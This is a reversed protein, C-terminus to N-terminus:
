DTLGETRGSPPLAPPSTTGDHSRSIPARTRSRKVGGRTRRRCGEHKTSQPGRREAEGSSQIEAVCDTLMARRMHQARVYLPGCDAHAVGVASTRKRAKERGHELEANMSGGSAAPSTRCHGVACGYTYSSLNKGRADAELRVSLIKSEGQRRQRFAVGSHRM